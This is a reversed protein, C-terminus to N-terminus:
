ISLRRRGRVFDIALRGILMLVVLGIAMIDILYFIQEAPISLVAETHAMNEIRSDWIGDYHFRIRWVTTDVKDISVVLYIAWLAPSLVTWNLNETIFEALLDTPETNYGTVLQILIADGPNMSVPERLDLGLQVTYETLQICAFTARSVEATPLITRLSGDRSVIYAKVALIIESCLGLVSEDYLRAIANPVNRKQKALWEASYNNTTISERRFFRVERVITM